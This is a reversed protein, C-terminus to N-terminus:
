SPNNALYEALQRWDERRAQARYVPIRARVGNAFYVLKGDDMLIMRAPRPFRRTMTGIPAHIVIDTDEVVFYTSGRLHLFATVIGALGFLMLPSPIFAFSGLAISARVIPTAFGLVGIAFGFPIIWGGFRVRLQMARDYGLSLV